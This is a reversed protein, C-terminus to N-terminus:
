ITVSCSTPEGARVPVKFTIQSGTREFSVGPASSINVRPSNGANSVTVEAEAPADSALLSPDGV